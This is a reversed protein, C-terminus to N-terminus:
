GRGRTGPMVPLEGPPRVRGHDIHGVATYGAAAPPDSPWLDRRARHLRSEPGPVPVLRLRPDEPLNGAVDGTSLQEAWGACPTQM